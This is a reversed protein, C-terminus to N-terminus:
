FKYLRLEKAKLNMMDSFVSISNEFQLKTDNSSDTQYNNGNNAIYEALVFASDNASAILLSHLLDSISFEENMYLNAISYSYPVSHVAYYSVKAKQSLDSCKETVIIATLLKTTSAPYMRQDANKSYLSKGTNVDLLTAADAYVDIDSNSTSDSGTNNTEPESVSSSNSNSYIISASSNIDSISLSNNKTIVFSFNELLLFTLVLFIGVIYLNKKM